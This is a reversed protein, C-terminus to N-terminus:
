VSVKTCTEMMDLYQTDAELLLEKIEVNDLIITTGAAPNEFYFYANTASALEADVEFEGYFENFITANWQHLARNGVYRWREEGSPLEYHLTFIPCTSYPGALKDCGIPEWRADMLKIQAYVNFVRGEEVCGLDLHAKPGMYETTRQSHRLCYTGGTESCLLISLEGGHNM